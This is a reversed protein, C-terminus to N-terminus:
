IGVAFHMAGLQRNGAAARRRDLFSLGGSGPLAGAHRSMRCWKVESGRWHELQKLIAESWSSSMLPKAQGLSIENYIIKNVVHM